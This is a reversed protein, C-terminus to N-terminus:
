QSIGGIKYNNDRQNGDEGGKTLLINNKAGSLSVIATLVNM